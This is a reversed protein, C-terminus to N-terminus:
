NIIDEDGNIFNDLHEALFIEENIKENDDYTPNYKHVYSEDMQIRIIEGKNERIMLHCTEVLMIYLVWKRRMAANEDGGTKGVKKIDTWGVIKHKVLLKRIIFRSLLVPECCPEGNCCYLKPDNPDNMDDNALHLMCTKYSTVLGLSKRQSLFLILEGIIILMKDSHKSLNPALSRSRPEVLSNSNNYYSNFIHLMKRLKVKQRIAVYDCAEWVNLRRKNKDTRNTQGRMILTTSEQSGCENYVEDQKVWVNLLIAIEYVWNKQQVVSYQQSGKQSLEKIIESIRHIKILLKLWEKVNYPLILIKLEQKM